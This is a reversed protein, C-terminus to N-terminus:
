KSIEDTRGSGRSVTEPVTFFNAVALHLFAKLLTGLGAPRGVLLDFPFWAGIGPSSTRPRAVFRAHLM